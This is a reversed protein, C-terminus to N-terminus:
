FHFKLNNFINNDGSLISGKGVIVGGNTHKNINDSLGQGTYYYSVGEGILAAAALVIGAKGMRGAILPLGINYVHGLTLTKTDWINYANLGVNLYNAGKVIKNGANLWSTSVRVGSVVRTNITTGKLNYRNSTTLTSSAVGAETILLAAEQATKIYCCEGFLFLFLFLFLFAQESGNVM